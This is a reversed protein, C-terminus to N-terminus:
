ERFAKWFFEDTTQSVIFPVTHMKGEKIADLPNITLYREQGFDPELVPGWLGM